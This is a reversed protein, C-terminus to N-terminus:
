FTKLEKRPIFIAVQIKGNPEPPGWSLSLEKVQADDEMIGAKKLSDIVPKPINDLDRRRNDPPHVLMELRCPQPGIGPLGERIRLEWWLGAVQEQYQRAEPSLVQRGRFRRWLRNGTPPYPLELQLVKKWPM